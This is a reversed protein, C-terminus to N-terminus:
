ARKATERLAAKRMIESVRAVYKTFSEGIKAPVYKAHWALVAAVRAASANKRVALAREITQRPVRLFAVSLVGLRAQLSWARTRATSQLALATEEVIRALKAQTSTKSTLAELARPIDDWRGLTIAMDLHALLDKAARLQAFTPRARQVFGELFLAADEDTALPAGHLAGVIGSRLRWADQRSHTKAIAQIAGKRAYAEDDGM